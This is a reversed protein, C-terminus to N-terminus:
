FKYTLGTQLHISFPSVNSANYTNFYQKYTLELGLSLSSTLPVYTDFGLNLSLNTRSATRSTGLQFEKFTNSDGYIKNDSLYLLSYGSILNMRIRKNLLAYKFELPIELYSLEERINISQNTTLFNRSIETDFANVNQFPNTLNQINNTAINKTRYTLSLKQVGLRITTRKSLEYNLYFGITESTNEERDNETLNQDISNGKSYFYFTNLGSTATISWKSKKPVTKKGEKISTTDVPKVSLQLDNLSNDEPFQFYQQALPISFTRKKFISKKNKKVSIKKVTVTKEPKLVLTNNESNPKNDVNLIVINKQQQPIIEKQIHQKKDNNKIKSVLIIGGISLALFLLLLIFRRRKKEKDLEREINTWVIDDPINNLTEISEKFVLGIDKSNKM